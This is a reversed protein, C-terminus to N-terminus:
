ETTIKEREVVAKWKQNDELVAKKFADGTLPNAEPEFKVASKYRAIAAPDKTM